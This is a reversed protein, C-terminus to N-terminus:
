GVTVAPGGARQGDNAAAPPLLDDQLRSELVSWRDRFDAMRAVGIAAHFSDHKKPRIGGHRALFERHHAIAVKQLDEWTMIFFEDTGYSRLRVFVCILNPYPAKTPRGMIQRRGDLQVEVFDRIDFQWSNQLIAKVQIAQHGGTSNSAIIDYHPVNGTFTTAIFGRRCVEAAVLYEGLQKTVQNQRGTAM